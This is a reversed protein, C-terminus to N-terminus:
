QEVAPELRATISACNLLDDIETRTSVLVSDGEGDVFHLKFMQDEIGIQEAMQAALVEGVEEVSHTSLVPLELVGLEDAGRVVRVAKLGKTRARAKPLPGQHVAAFGQALRAVGRPKPKPLIRRGLM